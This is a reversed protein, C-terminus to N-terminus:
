ARNFVVTQGDIEIELQNGNVFYIKSEVVKGTSDRLTLTDSTIKFTGKANVSTGELEQDWEFHGDSNLALTASTQSSSWTGVHRPVTWLRTDWKSEKERLLKGIRSLQRSFGSKTFNARPMTAVLMVTRSEPIYLFRMSSDFYDQNVLEFLRNADELQTEPLSRLVLYFSMVEKDKSLTVVTPVTFGNTKIQMRVRGDELTKASIGNAKALEEISLPVDSIDAKQTSRDNAFSPSQSNNKKKTSKFLSSIGNTQNPQVSKTQAHIGTGNAAVLGIAFCVLVWSKHINYTM